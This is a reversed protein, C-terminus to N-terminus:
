MSPRVHDKAIIQKLPISLSFYLIIRVHTKMTRLDFGRYIASARTFPNLYYVVLTTDLDYHDVTESFTMTYM